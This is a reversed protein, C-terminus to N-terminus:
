LAHRHLKQAEACMRDLQDRTEKNDLLDRAMQYGLSRLEDAIDWGNVYAGSLAFEHALQLMEEAPARRM